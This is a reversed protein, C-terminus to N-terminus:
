TKGCGTRGTICLNLGSRVWGLQALSAMKPKQLGRPHAYDIDEVCAVVRLKAERILRSLRRNDRHLLEREVLLGLRQEFGLDHTEPQELQQDLADLLGTLKLTRLQERTQQLLM